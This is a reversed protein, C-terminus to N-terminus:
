TKYIEDLFSKITLESDINFVKITNKLREFHAYIFLPKYDIIRVVEYATYNSDM